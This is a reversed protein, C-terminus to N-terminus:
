GAEAILALLAQLGLLYGRWGLGVIVGRCAGASLSHQRFPERAYINSLHVEIVPYEVALVADRLSVSSHALGGPNILAGAAWQRAGQIEDILVGEHNSQVATIEAGLREGESRIRDDLEALSMRGYHEPEREGLLNLNPGHLVLIRTM